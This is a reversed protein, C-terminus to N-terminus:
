LESAEIVCTEIFEEFSLDTQNLQGDEEYWITGDRKDYVACTGTGIEAFVVFRKM